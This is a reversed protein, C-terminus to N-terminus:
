GGWVDSLVRLWNGGLVKRMRAESWNRRAMAGALNPMEHLRRIGLPKNVTTHGFETLLRGYGKDRNVWDMYPGPRTHDLSFDTGIGVHEEGLLNIAYEMAAIVDDITADNGAALGPAFLSIGIIGGKDAAARLLADPKNRRVDKLARPLVHSFAVPKTSAAIADASTRDGVHSLDCLVGVRNMEALVDRGFGTLGGDGTELYGAGSLNQTNYTLQMIRVGLDAFIGIYDLQDEIPSTNQWGLIVATRGETKARRIDSATRGLFILDANESCRRKWESAYRLGGELNEWAVSACNAATVGGQHWEEFITRSWNCVNLGDIVIADRYVAAHDL